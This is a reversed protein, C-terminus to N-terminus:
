TWLDIVENRYKLVLGAWILKQDKKLHGKQGKELSIIYSKFATKNPESMSEIELEIKSLINQMNIESEATDADKDSCWLQNDAHEPITDFDQVKKRRNDSVTILGGHSERMKRELAKSTYAWFRGKKSDYTKILKCFHNRGAQELDALISTNKGAVKLAIQKIAKDYDTLLHNIDTTDTM